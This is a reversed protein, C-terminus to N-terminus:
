RCYAILLDHAKVSHVIELEYAGCFGQIGEEFQSSIWIGIGLEKVLPVLTAAGFELQINRYRKEFSRVESALSLGQDGRAIFRPSDEFGSPPRLEGRSFVALDATRPMKYQETRYTKGGTVVVDARSRLTKLWLLDTEGGLQKSGGSSDQTGGSHDVVLSASIRAGAALAQLYGDGVGASGLSDTLTLL